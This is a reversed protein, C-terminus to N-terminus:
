ADPLGDIQLNLEAMRREVDARTAVGLEDMEELLDELRDLEELLRYLTDTAPDARQGNRREM